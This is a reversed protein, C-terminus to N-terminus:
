KNFTGSPHTEKRTKHQGQGLKHLVHQLSLLHEPLVNFINDKYLRWLILLNDSQTKCLMGTKPPFGSQIFTYCNRAWSWQAHLLSILCTEDERFTRRQERGKAWRRIDDDQWKRPEKPEQPQHLSHINAFSDIFSWSHSQESLQQIM